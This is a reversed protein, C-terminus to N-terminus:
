FFTNTVGLSCTYCGISILYILVLNGNLFCLACAPITVSIFYLFNFGNGM